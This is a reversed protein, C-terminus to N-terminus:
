HLDFAGDLTIVLEHDGVQAYTYTGSGFAAAFRGSGASVTWHLVGDAPDSGSLTLSAGSRTTFVLTLTTTDVACPATFRLYYAACTNIAGSLTARGVLRPVVETPGESPVILVGEGSRAFWPQDWTTLTVHWRSAGATQAAVKAAAVACVVVVALCRVGNARM